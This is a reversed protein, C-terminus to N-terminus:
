ALKVLLRSDFSIEIQATGQEVVEIVAYLGFEQDPWKRMAKSDIEIQRSAGFIAASGAGSQGAFSRLDFFSHWIWGDWSLDIVPTPVATIGIALASATAMGIAVSGTYGDGVATAAVTTIGVNGRIRVLTSELQTPFVTDGLLTSGNGTLITTTSDGPGLGWATKRRPANGRHFGRPRAM